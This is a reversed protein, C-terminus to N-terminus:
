GVRRLYRKVGGGTVHDLQDLVRGSGLGETSGIAGGAIYMLAKQMGTAGAAKADQYFSEANQAGGAGASAAWQPVGMMKGVFGTAVFGAMSGVGSGFKASLSDQQQPDTLNANAIQRTADSLYDAVGTGGKLGAADLGADIPRVIGAVTTPLLTGAGEAVKAGFVRRSGETEIGARQATGLAAKATDLNAAARDVEDTISQRRLEGTTGRQGLATNIEGARRWRRMM